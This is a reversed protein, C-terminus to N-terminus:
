NEAYNNKIEREIEQLVGRSANKRLQMLYDAYSFAFRKLHTRTGKTGGADYVNDNIYQLIEEQDVTEDLEVALNILTVRLYGMNMNVIAEDMGLNYMEDYLEDTSNSIETIDNQSVAFILKDLQPKCLIAKSDREVGADGEYNIRGTLSVRNLIGILEEKDIPKLLYELCSYRIAQQAYSFDNYGSLIIFYADSLKEERIRKILEIGNMLPMSIDAIILDVKESKLFDYAEKGNSAMKVIRFGLKEWDILVSLGQMIFPEDDVLMVKLM